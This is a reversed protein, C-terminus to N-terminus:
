RFRALDVLHQSPCPDEFYQIGGIAKMERLARAAEEPSYGENADPRLVAPAGAPVWSTPSPRDGVAAVIAAATRLDEDVDRGAKTKLTTFGWREVYLRATEAAKEPAMLGLCGCLEVEERYVGGLLRCLPLGAAKGIADWLAMEVASMAYPEIGAARMRELAHEVDFLSCGRLLEEPDAALEGGGEGWGVLGEDTEVRAILSAAGRTEWIRGYYPGVPPNYPLFVRTTQIRAIRMVGRGM